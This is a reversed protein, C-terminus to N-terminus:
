LAKTEEISLIIYKIQSLLTTLDDLKEKVM